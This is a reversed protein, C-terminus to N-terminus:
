PAPAPLLRQYSGPVYPQNDTATGPQPYPNTCAGGPGNDVKGCHKTMDHGYTGDLDLTLWLRLWKGDSDGHATASALNAFTTAYATARPELWQALPLINRLAPVLWNAAPALGKVVPQAERLAPVADRTLAPLKRTLGTLQKVAAPAQALAPRAAQAAKYADDVTPGADRLLPPLADITAGAERTLVPLQALGDQLAATRGRLAALTTGGADVITRLSQEHAALTDVLTAGDDVVAALDDEQGRLEGTLRHLHKVGTDMADIADRLDGSANPGSVATGVEGVWRQLHRRSPGDFVELTADPLVHPRSPLVAGDHLAPANAPGRDLRIYAEGFATRWGVQGWAGRRVPRFKPDVTFTVQAGRRGAKIATVEGVQLGNVMVLSKTLLQGSGALRLTLRYDNRSRDVLNSGPGAFAANLGLFVIVALVGAVLLVVLARIPVRTSM